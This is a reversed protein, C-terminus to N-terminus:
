YMDVWWGEMVVGEGGKGGEVLGVRGERGDEGGGM